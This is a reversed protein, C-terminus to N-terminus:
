AVKQLHAVYSLVRKARADRIVPIVSALLDEGQFVLLEDMHVELLLSLAAMNEVSPLVKGKYWRYISQPCALHLYNQIYKVDYGASKLMIKLKKGTKEQDIPHYM